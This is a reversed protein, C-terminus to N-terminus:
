KFFWKTSAMYDKWTQKASKFSIDKIISINAPPALVSSFRGMALLGAAAVFYSLVGSYEPHHRDISKEEAAISTHFRDYAVDWLVWTGRWILVCSTSVCYLSVFRALPTCSHPLVSFVKKMRLENQLIKATYGQTIGMGVVGMTLSAAGSHFPNEPFIYDDCLYWLGRWYSACLVGVTVQSSLSGLPIPFGAIPKIKVPVKSLKTEQTSLNRKM